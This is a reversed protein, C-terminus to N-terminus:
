FGCNRTKTHRLRAKGGPLEAAMTNPSPLGARRPEPIVLAARVPLAPVMPQGGCELNVPTKSPRVIVVETDCVPSKWRSGPKLEM